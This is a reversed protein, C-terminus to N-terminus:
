HRDCPYNRELHRLIQIAAPGKLVSPPLAKLEHAVEYALDPTKRKKRLGCWSKGETADMVGEFYAYVRDRELHDVQGNNSHGLLADVLHQARLSPSYGGHKNSPVAGAQGVLLLALLLWWTSIHM